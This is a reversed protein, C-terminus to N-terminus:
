KFDGNKIFFKMYGFYYSEGQALLNKNKEFFSKIKENQNAIIIM